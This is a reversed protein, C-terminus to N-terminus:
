RMSARLLKLKNKVVSSSGDNVQVMPLDINECVESDAVISDANISEANISEDGVM